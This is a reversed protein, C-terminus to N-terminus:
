TTINKINNLLTISINSTKVCKFISNKVKFKRYLMATYMERFKEKQLKNV